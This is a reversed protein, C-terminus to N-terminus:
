VGTRERCYVLIDRTHPSASPRRKRLFALNAVKSLPFRPWEKVKVKEMLSRVLYNNGENQIKLIRELRTQVSEALPSDGHKSRTNSEVVGTKSLRDLRQLSIVEEHLKATTREIVSGLRDM